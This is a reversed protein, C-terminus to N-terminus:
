PERKSPERKEDDYMFGAVATRLDIVEQYVRAIEACSVAEQGAFDDGELEIQEANNQELDGAYVEVYGREAKEAFAL